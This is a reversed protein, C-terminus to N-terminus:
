RCVQNLAGQASSAFSYVRQAAYQIQSLCAPSTVNGANLMSAASQITGQISSLNRRAQNASKCTGINAQVAQGRAGRIRSAVITPRGGGSRICQSVLGSAQDISNVLGGIQSRYFYLDNANANARICMFSISLSLLISKM